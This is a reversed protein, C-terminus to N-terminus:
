RVLRPVLGRQQEAPCKTFAPDIFVSKASRRRAVREIKAACILPLRATGSQDECMALGHRTQNRGGEVAHVISPDRVAGCAAHRMGCADFAGFIASHRFERQTWRFAPKLERGPGFTRSSQHVVM